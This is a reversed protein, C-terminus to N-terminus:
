LGKKNLLNMFKQGEPAMNERYSNGLNIHFKTHDYKTIIHITCALATDTNECALTKHGKTAKCAYFKKEGLAMYRQLLCVKINGM